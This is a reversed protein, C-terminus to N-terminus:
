SSGPKRQFRCGAPSPNVVRFVTIRPDDDVVRQLGRCRELAHLTSPVSWANGTSLAFTSPEGVIVWLVDNARLYGWHASPDAFFDQAGRFLSNARHLLDGFTYPARGDLLGEADTVDPIFGETYANTLVVDDQELPLSRWVALDLRSLAQTSDYRAVGVSSVLACAVLVALVIPRRREPV